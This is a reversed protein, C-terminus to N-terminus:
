DFTRNNLFNDRTRLILRECWSLGNLSQQVFSSTVAFSAHFEACPMFLKPDEGIDSTRDLALPRIIEFKTRLIQFYHILLVKAANRWYPTEYRGNTEGVVVVVLASQPKAIHAVAWHKEGNRQFIAVRRQAMASKTFCQNVSDQNSSLVIINWDIPMKRNTTLNDYSVRQHKLHLDPM